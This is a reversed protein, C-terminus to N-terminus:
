REVVREMEDIRERCKRKELYIMDEQNRKEVLRVEDEKELRALKYLLEESKITQREIQKKLNENEQKLSELSSIKQLSHDRELRYNENEKTLKAVLKSM